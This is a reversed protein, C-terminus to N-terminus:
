RVGEQSLCPQVADDTASVSLPAGYDFCGDRADIVEADHEMDWACDPHYAFHYLGPSGDDLNGEVHVAEGQIVTECYCCRLGPGAPRLLRSMEVLHVNCMNANHGLTGLHFPANIM